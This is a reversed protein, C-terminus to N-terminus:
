HHSIQRRENEPQYNGAHLEQDYVQVPYLHDPMIHQINYDRGEESTKSLATSEDSYTQVSILQIKSSFLILKSLFPFVSFSMMYMM